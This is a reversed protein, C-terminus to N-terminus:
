QGSGSIYQQLHKMFAETKRPIFKRSPLVMWLNSSDNGSEGSAVWGPLLHTLEGSAINEDVLWDPLMAIGMGSKVTEALAAANSVRAKPRISVEVSKKGRSFLWTSRFSQYPFTLCSHKEIDEPRSIKRSANLYNPTAVVRYSVDCLRRAILSSDSLAGHRIAIDIRESVLDVVADSLMLEIEISPYLDSFRTLSPALVLQGFSVSAAVRILGSVTEEVNILQDAAADLEELAPLIRGLFQEGEETLVVSRTTRNFLRVGLAKELNAIARTVSSPAVNLSAAAPAFGGSNAVAVFMRLQHIEM